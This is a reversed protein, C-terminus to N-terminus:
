QVAAEIALRVGIQSWSTRLTDTQIDEGSRCLGAGGPAAVVATMGTDPGRDSAPGRVPGSAFGVMDGERVGPIRCPFANWGPEVRHWESQGVLEIHRGNKRFVKLRYQRCTNKQGIAIRWSTVTGSRQLPRSLDIATCQGDTAFRTERHIPTPLSERDFWRVFGYRTMGAVIDDRGDGNVDALSCAYAGDLVKGDPAQEPDAALFLRPYDGPRTPSNCVYIGGRPGGVIFDARGDDDWDTVGVIGVDLPSSDELAPAPWTVPARMELRAGKVFRPQQRASVAINEYYVIGGNRVSPVLGDGMPMHTGSGIFLDLDGDGNRDYACMSAPGSQRVLERGAVLREPPALTPRESEDRSVNRYFRILGDTGSALLDVDGDGDWDLVLPQVYEYPRALPEKNLRITGGNHQLRRGPGFAPRSAGRDRTPPLRPFVRITGTDDGVVLDALGDGDWDALVPASFSGVDIPADRQQLPQAARFAGEAEQLLTVVFGAGTGLLLDTRGDGNIDAAAPALSEDKLGALAAPDVTRGSPVVTGADAMDFLQLEGGDAGVAIHGGADDEWASVRARRSVRVPGEARTVPQAAAFKPATPTGVNLAMLVRGSEAGILLDLLDDNNVDAVTAGGDEPLLLEGDPGHLPAGPAVATRGGRYLYVERGLTVLLDLIGDGDMDAVAPVSEHSEDEPSAAEGAANMIRAPAFLPRSAQGINEFYLLDGYRSGTFLDIDGDGDWDAAAVSVGDGGTLPGIPHTFVQGGAPGRAPDLLERLTAAGTAPGGCTGVVLAALSACIVAALRRQAAGGNTAGNSLPRPRV